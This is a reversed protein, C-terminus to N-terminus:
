SSFLPKLVNLLMAAFGDNRIDKTLESAAFARADATGSGMLATVISLISGGGSAAGVLSDAAFFVWFVLAKGAGPYTQEADKIAPAANTLYNVIFDGLGLTNKAFQLYAPTRESFLIEQLLFDYIVSLIDNKNVSAANVRMGTQGNASVYSETTWSCLDNYLSETTFQLPIRIGLKKESLDSVLKCVLAIPDTQAFRVDFGLLKTLDIDYIPRITEILGNLTYLVHDMVDTLCGSRLFFLLNPLMTMLESIPDQKIGDVVAFVTDILNSILTISGGTLSAATPLNQVGLAEMLPILGATYADYGPLDVLKVATESPADALSVTIHKGLLLYDLLGRIPYVLDIVGQRFAARDGPTFAAHYGGWFSLDIGMKNKLLDKLIDPLAVKNLTEAIKGAVTNLIDPTCIKDAIGDILGALSDAAIGAIQIDTGSLVGDILRPLNNVMYEAKAATWYDTYLTKAKGEGATFARWTVATPATNTQPLLLECLAAIAADPDAALRDTVTYIIDPVAAGPSLLAFVMDILAHDKLLSFIYRLLFVAVDAKNAEIRVAKGAEAGTYPHESRFTDHVTVAGLTALTPGDIEPIQELQLFGKVMSLIGNLSSVDIGMENLDILENGSIRIPEENKYPDALMGDGAIQATYYANTTYNIETKLLSLLPTILGAEVAYAIHPLVGLLFSLPAALLQDVVKDVLDLLGETLFQRVSTFTNGDPPTVGLAEFIPAVVNNYGPNPAASFVLEITNVTLDLKIMGGLVYANGAGKGINGTKECPVNNLLALLMPEAGSLAASLADVFSERDTVGWKLNLNGEADTLAADKWPTTLTDTEKDYASRTTAQKLKAKAEAYKEPLIEALTTPFLYLDIATLAQEIDDLDLETKVNAKKVVPMGTPVDPIELTDPIEVWVKQFEKEIIPYLLQVVKNVLQDSYVMKLVDNALGHLDLGLLDGTESATLTKDVLSILTEMKEDTVTYPSTRARDGPAAARVIDPLKTQQYVTFDGKVATAAASGSLAAEGTDKAHKKGCGPLLTFLLVAALLICVIKKFRM